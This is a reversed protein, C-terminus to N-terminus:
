CVEIRVRGLILVDNKKILVDKFSEIFEDNLKTGNHSALDQVYFRGEKNTITLHKSSVSQDDLYYDCNLKDRGMVCPFKTIEIETTSHNVEVRLELCTANVKNTKNGGPIFFVTDEHIDVVEKPKPRLEKGCKPCFATTEYLALGCYPCYGVPNLVPQKPRTVVFVVVGIVIILLLAVIM